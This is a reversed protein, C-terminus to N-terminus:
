GHFWQWPGRGVMKDMSYLVFINNTVEKGASFLKLLDSPKKFLFEFMM